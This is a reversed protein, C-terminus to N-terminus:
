WRDGGLILEEKRIKRMKMIFTSYLIIDQKTNYLTDHTLDKAHYTWKRREKRGYMWVMRKGQCTCLYLNGFKCVPTSYLSSLWNTTYCAPIYSGDYTRPGTEYWISASTAWVPFYDSGSFPMTKGFCTPVMTLFIFLYIIWHMQKTLRYTTSLERYLFWFVHFPTQTNMWAVKITYTEFKFLANSVFASNLCTLNSTM